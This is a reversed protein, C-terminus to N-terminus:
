NRDLHALDSIAAIREVRSRALLHVHFELGAGAGVRRAKALALDPLCGTDGISILRRGGEATAEAVIMLANEYAPCTQADYVSFVYRRGSSGRWSRFRSGLAEGALASLPASADSRRNRAALESPGAPHEDLALM